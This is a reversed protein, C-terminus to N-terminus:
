KDNLLVLAMLEAFKSVYWHPQTERPNNPSTINKGYAPTLISKFTKTGNKSPRSVEALFGKDVLLKNFKIASINAGHDALLEKVSKTIESSVASGGPADIAYDPLIGQVGTKDALKQYCGLISSPSMKMVQSCSEIMAIAIRSREFNILRNDGISKVMESFDKVLRIKFRRVIDSNRMYTMLLTAQQENLVAYETPSGQPNLRSQFAVEGFEGLDALYTRVMDMINKHQVDTGEAIALSTTTAENNIVTVTTQMESGNLNIPRSSFVAALRRASKGKRTKYGQWAGPRM